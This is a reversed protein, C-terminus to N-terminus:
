RIPELGELVTIADSDYSGAEVNSSMRTAQTVYSPGEDTLEGAPIGALDIADPTVDFEAM